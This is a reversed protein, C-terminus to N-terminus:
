GFLHNFLNTIEPYSKESKYTVTVNPALTHCFIMVFIIAINIGMDSRVSVFSNLPFVKDDFTIQRDDISVTRVPPGTKLLKEVESLFDDPTATKRNGTGMTTHDRTLGLLFSRAAMDAKPNFKGDRLWNLFSSRNIKYLKAFGTFTLDDASCKDTLRQALEEHALSLSLTEDLRGYTLPYCACLHHYKEHYREELWRDGFRDYMDKLSPTRLLEDSFTYGPKSPEGGEVINYILSSKKTISQYIKEKPTVDTPWTAHSYNLKWARRWMEESVSKTVTCLAEFTALLPPSSFIRVLIELDLGILYCRQDHPDDCRVMIDAPITTPSKFSMERNNRPSFCIVSRSRLTDRVLKIFGDNSIIIFPISRDIKLHLYAVTAVIVYDAADDTNTASYLQTLWSCDSVKRGFARACSVGFVHFNIGDGPHDRISSNIYRIYEGSNDCDILIISSIGPHLTRRIDPLFVFESPLQALLFRKMARRIRANKIGFEHDPLSRTDIGYYKCFQARSINFFHSTYDFINFLQLNSMCDLYLSMDVGYPIGLLGTIQHLPVLPQSIDSM